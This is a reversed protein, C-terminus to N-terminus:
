QLGTSKAKSIGQKGYRSSSIGNKVENNTQKFKNMVKLFVCTQLTVLVSARTTWPTVNLGYHTRVRPNSDRKTCKEKKKKEVFM